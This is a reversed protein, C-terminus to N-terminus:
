AIRDRAGLAAANEMALTLAEGSIDTAIVGAVATELALAIAIAGSGTGIDAVVSAFAGLRSSARQMQKVVAEVLGETEPRPILVRRDVALWHGRFNARGAAYQQPWGAARREVAREFRERLAPSIPRYRDLTAASTAGCVCLAYLSRAEEAPDALGAAELREAAASVAAGVTM